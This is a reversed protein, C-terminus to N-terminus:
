ELELHMIVDRLLHNVRLMKKKLTELSEQYGQHKEFRKIRALAESIKEPDKGIYEIRRLGDLVRQSDQSYLLELYTKEGYKNRRWYISADTLGQEELLAMNKQTNIIEQELKKILEIIKKARTIANEPM